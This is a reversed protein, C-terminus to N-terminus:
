QTAARVVAGTKLNRIESVGSNGGLQGPLIYDIGAGFYHRLRLPNNAPDRGAPNASTSILPGLQDCLTKVTPHASVRLAIMDSDGRILESVGPACPVLYTVPGRWSSKLSELESSDLSAAYPLLQEISSGVLILGRRWSRKKLDLIRVISSDFDPICGLGWVGETPYAIIDGRLLHKVALQVQWQNAFATV